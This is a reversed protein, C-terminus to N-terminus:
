NMWQEFEKDKLYEKLEKTIEFYSYSNDMYKPQIGIIALEYIMKENRIKKYKEPNKPTKRILM